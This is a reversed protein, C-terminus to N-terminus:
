ITADLSHPPIFFRLCFDYNNHNPTRPVASAIRFSLTNSLKYSTNKLSYYLANFLVNLTHQDGFYAKLLETIQYTKNTGAM